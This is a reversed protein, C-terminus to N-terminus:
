NVPGGDGRLYRTLAERVEPSLGRLVEEASLDKLREEPPLTALIEAITEEVFKELVESMTMGEAYERLLKYLLTSVLPSQPRYQSQGYHLLDVRASFLHLQANHPEQPLEGAVIVRVTLGAAALDYVGAQVPVLPVQQALQQPYRASVALLRYDTVAVLRDLSPSSQKRYNVFHGILEQIAWLDLAEQYSKFTVLNYLALPAFGDPLQPLPGPGKRLLLLDLYQQRVSLDIEAEVQVCSGECRDLLALYFLRHFPRPERM